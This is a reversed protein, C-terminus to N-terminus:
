DRLLGPENGVIEEMFDVSLRGHTKRKEMEEQRERMKVGRGRGWDDGPRPRSGHVEVKFHGEM